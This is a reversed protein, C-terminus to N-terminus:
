PSEYGPLATDPDDMRLWRDVAFWWVSSLLVVLLLTLLWPAPRLVGVALAGAAAALSAITISSYLERVRDFDRLSSMTVVLGILVLAVAGSALWANAAPTRSDGAHEILGVLSAGTAAIAMTVPLHSTIWRGVGVPTPSPMRRGVFDFYTWWIAFGIMLGFMGTIFTVADREAESLGDVVGVVVEGLVIITFLGFREVTSEVIDMTAGISVSTFRIMVLSGTATLVVFAAWVWMRAENSLFSSGFIVIISIVNMAVYRRAVPRYEESDQRMVTFWLYTMLLLYASYALAFAAGDDGAAGSTYIGLIALIGMEVFVFLRTRGDERGHFDYYLTGNLWAIWIMSFIVAFEATTRLTIDEALHHAAQAIVVVYVLDYFLELFSVARDELVEGHARPPHWFRARFRAAMSAPQESM